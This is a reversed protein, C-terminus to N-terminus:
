DILSKEVVKYVYPYTSVVVLRGLQIAQQLQSNFLDLNSKAFSELQHHHVLGHERYTKYLSNRSLRAKLVLDDFTEWPISGINAKFQPTDTHDQQLAKPLKRVYTPKLGDPLTPNASLSM